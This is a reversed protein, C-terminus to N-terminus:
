NKASSNYFLELKDTELQKVERSNQHIIPANLGSNFLVNGTLVRAEDWLNKEIFQNLTYAGGEIIISQVNMEYLHHLLQQLETGDFAIKIHRLNESVVENKKENFIITQADENFINYDGRLSLQRDIVIRIPNKGIVERVTLSPNDVSVTNRGVLIADEQSRWLHVLRKTSESTIWNVGLENAERDRDLFGDGSRAWKLIIYPRKYLHYTFFRKNLNWCEKELVGVKVDVGATQLREIGRGAVLSHIDKSGIVVRPIKKEIILDCCPPTKGHHACPELNVYLTSESLLDQNAVSRIANVEAHAEGYQRHFGEGIIRNQHVIVCGVLPNPSTNGLGNEALQLCRQMFYIDIDNKDQDNVM